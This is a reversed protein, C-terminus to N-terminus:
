NPPILPFDYPDLPRKTGRPFRAERANRPPLAIERRYKALREVIRDADPGGGDVAHGALHRRLLLGLAFLDEDGIERGGGVEGAFPADRDQDLGDVAAVPGAIEQVPGLLGGGDNCSDAPGINAHLEIEIVDLDLAAVQHGPKRAMVRDDAM